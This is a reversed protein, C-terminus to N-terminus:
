RDGLAAEITPRIGAVIVAVGTPNPHMGDSIQRGPVGAVGNMFFPYLPVHHAAALAPFIADFAAVYDRGLNPSARMGALVVPIGRRAFETLVADLNAKAAAVPEGRLMDNAGLEVIALDPKAKLGTLVWNLRARGQATTDGSVGANHVTVAHGRARLAAELQPAFGEGPKLMYGASLSDGFAVVLKVPGASASTVIGTAVGLALVHCLGRRMGYRTGRRM